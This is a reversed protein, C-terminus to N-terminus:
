PRRAQGVNIVLYDGEDFRPDNESWLETSTPGWIRRKLQCDAEFGYVKADVLPYSGTDRASCSRYSGNAVYVSKSDWFHIGFAYASADNNGLKASTDRLKSLTMSSPFIDSQEDESLNDRVAKVCSFGMHNAAIDAAQNCAEQRNDGSGETADSSRARIVFNEMRIAKRYTVSLMRPQYCSHDPRNCTHEVVPCSHDARQCSSSNNSPAPVQERAPAGCSAVSTEFQRQENDRTYYELHARVPTADGSKRKVFLDTDSMLYGIVSRPDKVFESTDSPDLWVRFHNAGSQLIRRLNLVPHGPGTANFQVTIQCESAGGGNFGQSQSSVVTYGINRLNGEADLLSPGNIISVEFKRADYETRTVQFARQPTLSITVSSPDSAGTYQITWPGLHDFSDANRLDQIIQDVGAVDSAARAETLAIPNVLNLAVFGTTLSLYIGLTKLSMQVEKFLLRKIYIRLSHTLLYLSLIHKKSQPTIKDL